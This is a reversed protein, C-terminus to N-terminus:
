SEQSGGDTDVLGYRRLKAYLSQRSLGLLQAASARNDGSVELAAEICRREIVDTTERIIEKLSVRGVLEALDEVSRELGGAAPVTQHRPVSRIVFGFCPQKGNMASVGSVEAPESSGYEGRMVTSFNRVTGHERLNAMVINVDVGPRGLWNDLPKDLVQRETALQVMDVFASNAHMIRRDADVVVFADPIGAVVELLSSAREHALPANEETPTLRVLLMSGGEQRFLSATVIIEVGDSLKARVDDAWGAVGVASLQARVKTWGAEDFVSSLPRGELGEAQVGLLRGAAPNAEVIRTKSASVILVAEQALHFLLRYRTEAHRLRAYEREMAQQANLLRQQLRAIHRLDRGLALIRGDEEDLRMASYRVPIDPAGEARHNIERSRAEGGRGAEDLLAEVKARSDRTVTEVWPSGVWARYGSPLDDMEGFALDRIVGQEDLILAVDVAVRIMTAATMADIREFSKTPNEFTGANGTLMQAM